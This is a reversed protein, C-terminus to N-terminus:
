EQRAARVRDPDVRGEWTWGGCAMHPVVEGLKAAFQTLAEDTSTGTYELEVAAVSERRPVSYFQASLDFVSLDRSPREGPKAKPDRAKPIVTVIERVPLRGAITLVLILDGQAAPAIQALFDDTPGSERTAEDIASWLAPRETDFPETLAASCLGSGLAGSIRTSLGGWSDSSMRGDRYVGLISVTHPSANFGSALKTRFRSDGTQCGLLACALAGAALASAWAPAAAL